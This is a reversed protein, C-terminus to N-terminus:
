VMDKTDIPFLLQNGDSDQIEVLPYGLFHDRSPLSKQRIHDQFRVNVSASGFPPNVTHLRNIM